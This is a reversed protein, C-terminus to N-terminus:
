NVSFFEVVSSEKPIKLKKKIRHINVRVTTPNINMLQCIEKNSLNMKLFACIKLDHQTIDYRSKLDKLFEPHVEEFHTFFEKWMTDMNKQIKIQTQTESIEKTLNQIPQNKIQDLLEHIQSLLDTKLALNATAAVLKRNIYANNDKESQLSAELVEKNKDSKNLRSRYKKIFFYSLAGLFLLFLVIVIIWNNKKALIVQMTSVKEENTKNQYQMLINTTEPVNKLKALSDNLNKSRYYYSLAEKAKGKSELINAKLELVEAKDEILELANIHEIAKNIYVDTSDLNKEAYFIKALGFLSSAQVARFKKEYGIKLAEDFYKRAKNINDMKLSLNGLFNSIRGIILDDGTDKLGDYAYKLYIYSEDYSKNEKLLEGITSAIYYENPSQIEKFYLKSKKYNSIASDTLNLDFFVNALNNYAMGLGFEKQEKLKESLEVAKISHKLAEPYNKLQSQVASMNNAFRLSAISDGIQRSLTLNETFHHIAEEFNNKGGTEALIIGLIGHSQIELNILNNNQSLLLAERIDQQASDINRSKYKRAAALLEEIHTSEKKRSIDQARSHACSFVTSIILIPLFFKMYVRNLRKASVM